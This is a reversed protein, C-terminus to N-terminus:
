ILNGSPEIAVALLCVLLVVAARVAFCVRKCVAIAAAM